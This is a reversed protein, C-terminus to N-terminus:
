ELVRGDLYMQKFLAPMDDKIRDWNCKLFEMCIGYRGQDKNGAGKNLATQLEEATIPMDLLDRCGKSLTRHGANEM